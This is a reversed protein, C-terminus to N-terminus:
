KKLQEQREKVVLRQLEQPPIVTVLMRTDRRLEEIVDVVTLRTRNNKALAVARRLTEKNQDLVLLINKFRQM